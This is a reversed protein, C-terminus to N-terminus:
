NRPSPSQSGVLAYANPFPPAFRHIFLITTALFPHIFLDTFSLSVTGLSCEVTSPLPHTIEVFFITAYMAFKIGEVPSM